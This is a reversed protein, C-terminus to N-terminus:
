SGKADNDVKRMWVTLTEWLRHTVPNTAYNNGGLAEKFLPWESRYMTLKDINDDLFSARVNCIRDALKIRVARPDARLKLFTKEFRAARSPGPENTVHQVLEAIDIGFTWRLTAFDVKTDELVDHLLAATLLNSDTEGHGNLEARVAHCHETYLYRGYKQGAHAAAIFGIAREYM